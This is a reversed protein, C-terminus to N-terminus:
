TLAARGSTTEGDQHSRPAVDAHHDAGAVLRALEDAAEVLERRLGPGARHLHDVDVAARTVAARLEGRAAAGRHDLDVAERKPTREVEARGPRAVLDDDGERGM